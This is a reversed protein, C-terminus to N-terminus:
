PLQSEPIIDALVKVPHDNQSLGVEDSVHSAGVAAKRGTRMYNQAPSLLSGARDTLARVQSGQLSTALVSVPCRTNAFNVFEPVLM